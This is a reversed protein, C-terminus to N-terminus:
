SGMPGAFFCKVEGGWVCIWFKGNISPLAKEHPVTVGLSRVFYGNRKVEVDDDALQRCDREGCCLEGVSNKWNEDAIWQGDGHAKSHRVATALLILALLVIALRRLQMTEYYDM